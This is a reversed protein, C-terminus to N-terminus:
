TASAVSRVPTISAGLRRQLRATLRDLDGHDQPTLKPGPMRVHASAIAGRRRLTEKRLAIGIVPQAEHKLLPLYTDFLDEAADPQGKGHLDCVQVLMEPFAFGTMAGNVGRVMEQPLYLGGNGVLISVQRGPAARLRTLKNLGPWDEHKLMVVQPYDDIIRRMLDASINVGTIFPYDQLVVPADLRDLVSAFYGYVQEDTRVSNVPAVMVGAAGADMAGRALKLLPDTGPASVGVVVPVRGDVRQMYRQMVARSEDSTLKHAEGMMGLITIGTVGKELYFEVASDISKEDISGDDAFPTVAIVFVGSATENLKQPM